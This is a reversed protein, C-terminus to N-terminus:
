IYHSINKQYRADRPIKKRKIFAVALSLAFLIGVVLPAGLFEYAEFVGVSEADFDLTEGFLRWFVFALGANIVGQLLKAFFYRKVSINAGGCLSLVQFHVSLGSWGLAFAAILIGFAIPRVGSAAAVGGTLEFVSFVLARVAENRTLAGLATGLTGVLACFFIVFACVNLMGLAASSIADSFGSVSFSIPPRAAMEGKDGEKRRWFINIIIGVIIASLLTIFYLATGLKRCGFLSVGVASIVFASSPNNSFCLLRSLEGEDIRGERFLSLAMRAGIPFGCLTGLLFAAGGEGSAGFLARMVPRLPRTLPTIIGSKVIIESTVMFPFLSPIVTMVCLKMGQTMYDIAIESNRLILFLMFISMFGIPIDASHGMAAPSKKDREKSKRTNHMM